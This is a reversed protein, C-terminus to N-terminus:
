LFYTPRQQISYKPILAAFFTRADEDSRMDAKAVFLVDFRTLIAM